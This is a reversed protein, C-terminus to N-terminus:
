TEYKQNTKYNFQALKILIKTVLYAGDDLFYNEQMAGHGSTEM